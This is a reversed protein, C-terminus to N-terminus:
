ASDFGGQATDEEHHYYEDLCEPFFANGSSRSYDSLADAFDGIAQAGPTRVARWPARGRERAALPQILWERARSQWSAIEPHVGQM